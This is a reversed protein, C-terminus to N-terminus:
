LGSERSVTAAMLNLAVVGAAVMDQRMLVPELIQAAMEQVRGVLGALSALLVAVVLRTCSPVVALRRHFALVVLVVSILVVQPVSRVQV